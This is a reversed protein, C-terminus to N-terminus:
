NLFEHINLGLLTKAIKGVLIVVEVCRNLDAGRMASAKKQPTLPPFYCRAHLMSLHM